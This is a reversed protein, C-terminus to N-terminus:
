FSINSEYLNYDSVNNDTEAASAAANQSSIMSIAASINSIFKVLSSTKKSM